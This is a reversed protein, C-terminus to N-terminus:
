EDQIFVYFNYYFTQSFCTSCFNGNSKQFKKTVKGIQVKLVVNDGQCHYILRPLQLLYPDDLNKQVTHHLRYPHQQYLRNM